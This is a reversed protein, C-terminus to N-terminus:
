ANLRLLAIGRIETFVGSSAIGGREETRGDPTNSDAKLDSTDVRQSEEIPNTGGGHSAPLASLAQLAAVGMIVM